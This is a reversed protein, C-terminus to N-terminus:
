LCIGRQKHRPAENNLFAPLVRCGHFIGPFILCLEQHLVLLTQYVTVPNLLVLMQRTFRISSIILVFSMRNDGLGSM